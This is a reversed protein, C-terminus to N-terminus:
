KLQLVKLEVLTERKLRTIINKNVIRILPITLIFLLIYINILNIIKVFDVAITILKCLPCEPMQCHETHLYDMAIISSEVSMIIFTICFCIILIKKTDM